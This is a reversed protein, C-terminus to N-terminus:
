YVFEINTCKKRVCGRNHFEQPGALVLYIFEKNVQLSLVLGPIVRDTMRLSEKNLLEVLNAMSCLESTTILKASNPRSRQTLFKSSREVVQDCVNILVQFFYLINLWNQQNRTTRFHTMRLNPFDKSFWFTLRSWLFTSSCGHCFLYMLQM